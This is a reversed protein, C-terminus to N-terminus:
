AKLTTDEPPHLESYDHEIRKMLRVMVDRPLQAELIARLRLLLMQYLEHEQGASEKLRTDARIKVLRVLLEHQKELERTFEELTQEAEGLTRILKEFDKRKGLQELVEEVTAGDADVVPRNRMGELRVLLDRTQNKAEHVEPGYQEMDALNARLYFIDEDTADPNVGRAKYEALLATLRDVRSPASPGRTPLVPANAEQHPEQLTTEPHESIKPETMPPLSTRKTKKM